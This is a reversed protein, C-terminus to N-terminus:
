AEFDPLQCGVSPFCRGLFRVRLSVLSTLDDAEFVSSLEVVRIPERTVFFTLDVEVGPFGIDFYFELYVTATKVIFVVLDEVDERPSCVSGLVVNPVTDITFFEGRCLFYELGEFNDISVGV